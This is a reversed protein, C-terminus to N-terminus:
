EKNDKNSTREKEILNEIEGLSLKKVNTVLLSPSLFDGMQNCNKIIVSLSEKLGKEIPMLGLITAFYGYFEIEEIEGKDSKFGYEFESKIVREHFDNFAHYGKSTVVIFYRLSTGKGGLGTSIFLPSRDSLSSQMLMKSEQFALTAWETLEVDPSEKYKEIAKFAVVNDVSALRCLLTRKEESSTEPDFLLELQELVLDKDLEKKQKKSEKFYQMQLKVDIEEELVAINGAYKNILDRMAEFAKKENM